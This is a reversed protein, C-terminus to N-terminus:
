AVSFSRFQFACHRVTARAAAAITGRIAAAAIGMTAVGTAPAPTVMGITNESGFFIIDWQEIENM